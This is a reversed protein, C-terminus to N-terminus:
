ARRARDQDTTYGINAVDLASTIAEPYGPILTLRAGVRRRVGCEV